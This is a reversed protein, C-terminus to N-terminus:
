ECKALWGEFFKDMEEETIFEGREIEEIGKQVEEAIWKRHAIYAEVAENIIASRPRNQAKALEDLHDRATEDTRFTISTTTM